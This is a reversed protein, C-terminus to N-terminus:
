GSNDAGCRCKGGSRVRYQDLLPFFFSLPVLVNKWYATEHPFRHIQSAPRSVGHLHVFQQPHPNIRTRKSLSAMVRLLLPLEVVM